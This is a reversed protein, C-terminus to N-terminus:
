WPDGLNTQIEKIRKWLAEDPEVANLAMSVCIASLDEARPRSNPNEVAAEVAQKYIGLAQEQAGMAQNAAAIPILTDAKNIDFIEASKEQYLPLAKELSSRAVMADGARFRLAALRAAMPIYYEAPWKAADIVEQAINILELGQPMDAQQLSFESLDM